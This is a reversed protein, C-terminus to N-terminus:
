TRSVEYWNGFAGKLTLVKGSIASYASSLILNGATSVTLSALFQLRITRGFFNNCGIKANGTAAGSGFAVTPASTYSNAVGFNTMRVGIVRGSNSVLAVGAAGTGGGGSFTVSPPFAPDYNSGANTIEVFRVKGNFTDDSQTLINNITTTGSIFFDEGIDPIVLNSTSSISNYIGGNNWDVNDGQIVNFEETGGSLIFAKGFSAGTVQNGTLIVDNGGHEFLIGSHIPSSLSITNGVIQM